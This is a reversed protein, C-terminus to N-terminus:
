VCTTDKKFLLDRVPIRMHLRVQKLKAQVFKERMSLRVKEIMIALGLKAQGVQRYLSSM